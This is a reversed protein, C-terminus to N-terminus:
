INKLMRAELTWCELTPCQDTQDTRSSNGLAVVFTHGSWPHLGDVVYQGESATTNM